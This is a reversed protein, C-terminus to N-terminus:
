EAGEVGSDHAADTLYLEEIRELGGVSAGEAVMRGQRMLYWRDSAALARRVQQEVIVVGIGLTRAAEQIAALLRDVVIPGLGLSLEDALLVKPERALARALTVMQQEGGSLLGARRDLLKALEPFIAIAPDVGGSGLLLNDRVTMSMIVSRDEPVFALGAVARKHLGGVLPNGFWEVTGGKLPLEGSLTMLTTSKGAGNPGILAVVEGPHVVLDIGHVVALDGYGAIMETARLAAERKAAEVVGVDVDTVFLSRPYTPRLDNETVFPLIQM